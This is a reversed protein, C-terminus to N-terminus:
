LSAGGACVDPIVNRLIVSELLVQTEKSAGYGLAYVRYVDKSQIGAPTGKQPITVRKNTQVIIYDSEKANAHDLSLAAREAHPASPDITIGNITIQAM